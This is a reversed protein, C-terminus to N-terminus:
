VCTLLSGVMNRNKLHRVFRRSLRFRLHLCLDFLRCRARGASKLTHMLIQESPLRRDLCVPFGGLLCTVEIKPCWGGRHHYLMCLANFTPISCSPSQFLHGHALQNHALDNRKSSPGSGTGALSFTGRGFIVGTRGTPKPDPTFDALRPKVTALLGQM